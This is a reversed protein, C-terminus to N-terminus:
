PSHAAWLLSGFLVLPLGIGWLVMAILATNRNYQQIERLGDAIDDFAASADSGFMEIKASIRDLADNM